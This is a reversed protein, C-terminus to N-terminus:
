KQQLEIVLLEEDSIPTARVCHYEHADMAGCQLLFPPKQQRKSAGKFQGVM